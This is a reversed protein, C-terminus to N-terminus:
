GPEVTFTGVYAGNSDHLRLADVMYDGDLKDAIERLIRALEVSYEPDFASNDLDISIQAIM